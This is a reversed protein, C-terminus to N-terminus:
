LFVKARISDSQVNLNPKLARIFLMENVLCNMVRGGDSFANRESFRKCTSLFHLFLNSQKTFSISKILAKFGFRLTCDSEMRAFTNKYDECGRINIERALMAKFAIIQM